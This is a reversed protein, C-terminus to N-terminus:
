IRFGEVRNELDFTCLSGLSSAKVDHCLYLSQEVCPNSVPKFNM